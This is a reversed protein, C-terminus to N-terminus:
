DPAVILNPYGLLMTRPKGRPLVRGLGGVKGGLPPPIRIQCGLTFHGMHLAYM